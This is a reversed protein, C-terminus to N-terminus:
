PEPLKLVDGLLASVSLRYVTMCVCAESSETSCLLLLSLEAAAPADVVGLALLLLLLLVPLVVEESLFLAANLLSLSRPADIRASM